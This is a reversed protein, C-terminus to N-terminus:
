PRGGGAPRRRRPGRTHPLVPTGRAARGPLRARTRTRAHAPRRARPDHATALPLVVKGALAHRPLLDLFIKLLGTFSAKHVPTGIVVGDARDLRRAAAALAPHGADGRVLAEAPLPRLALGGVRLGLGTLRPTVLDDLVRQTTSTRSPSACVALVTPGAPGTM